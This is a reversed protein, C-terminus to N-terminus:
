LVGDDNRYLRNAQGDNGVALDLDGDGDMDGWAVSFTTDYEDSHWTAFLNPDDQQEQASATPPAPLPSLAALPPLASLVTSFLLIVILPLSLCRSRVRPARDRYDRNPRLLHM